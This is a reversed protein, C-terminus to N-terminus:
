CICKSRFSASITSLLISPSPTVVPCTFSTDRRHSKGHLHASPECQGGGPAITCWEGDDQAGRVTRLSPLNLFPEFAGIRVPRGSTWVTLTKLRPLFMAAGGDAASRTAHNVRSYFELYSDRAPLARREGERSEYSWNVVDGADVNFKLSFLNVTRALLEYCMIGVLSDEYLDKRTKDPTRERLLHLCQEFLRRREAVKQRKTGDGNRLQRYQFSLDIENIDEVLTRSQAQSVTRYLKVLTRLDSVAIKKFLFPQAIRGIRKSVLCLSCFNGYRAVKAIGPWRDDDDVVLQELIAMLLEDPLAELHSSDLDPPQAMNATNSHELNDSTCDDVVAADVQLEDGHDVLAIQPM